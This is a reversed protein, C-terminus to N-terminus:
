VNLRPVQNAESRQNREKKRRRYEMKKRLGEKTQQIAVVFEDGLQYNEMCRTTSACEMDQCCCISKGSHSAQQRLRIKYRSNSMLKKKKM